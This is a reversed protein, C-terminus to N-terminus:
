LFTDPSFFRPSWETAYQVRSPSILTTAGNPKISPLYSLCLHVPDPFYLELSLTPSSDMGPEILFTHIQSLTSVM